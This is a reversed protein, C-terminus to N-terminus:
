KKAKNEKADVKQNSSNSNIPTPVPAPTPINKVATKENIIMDLIEFVGNSAREMKRLFGIINEFNLPQKGIERFIDKTIDHIISHPIILDSYKSTHSFHEKGEGKEYWRGLRCSHHDVFKFMEKKNTVSDYTNFKWIVHDTKALTLFIRDITYEFNMFSHLIDQINTKLDIDFGSFKDHFIQLESVLESSKINVASVDQKMSTLAINIDGIAKQTRDALKKVEDAVVAFGRGHEGARAAEIAANLALLNTQESIDKILSLVSNINETRESLMGSASETDSSMTELIMLEGSIESFEKALHQVEDLMKKSDNLNKKGSSVADVLDSQIDMMSGKIHENEFKLIHYFGEGEDNYRLRKLEDELNSIKLKLEDESTRLASNERELQKIYFKDQSNFLM